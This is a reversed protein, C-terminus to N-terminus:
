IDTRTLSKIQAIKVREQSALKPTGFDQGRWYKRDAAESRKRRIIEYDIPMVDGSLRPGIFSSEKEYQVSYYRPPRCKAGRVIFVDRPFVDSKFRDYWDRGIGPKRSMRSFEPYINNDTYYKDETAYKSVIYRAVYAASEFTCEGVLCNGNRWIRSLTDSTYVDNGGKTDYFKKDEFDYGFVVAHYHPRRTREGYEGCAYYRIGSGCEKRFRKWFLELDRPKLSPMKGGYIVGTEEDVYELPLHKDDYTLTIFCNDAHMQAENVCRAAWQRSKEIGCGLCRGCPIIIHGHKETKRPLSRPHYCPM